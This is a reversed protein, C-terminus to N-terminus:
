ATPHSGGAAESETGGPLMSTPHCGGNGESGTAGCVMSPGLVGKGLNAGPCADGKCGDQMFTPTRPGLPSSSCAALLSLALVAFLTRM